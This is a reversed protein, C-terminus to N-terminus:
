HSVYFIITDTYYKMRGHTCHTLRFIILRVERLPKHHANISPVGPQGFQWGVEIPVHCEECFRAIIHLAQTEPIADCM